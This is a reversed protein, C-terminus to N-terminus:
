RPIVCTLRLRIRPSFHNNIMHYIFLQKLHHGKHLLIECIPFKFAPKFSFQCCNESKTSTLAKTPAMIPNSLATNGPNPFLTNPSSALVAIKLKIM